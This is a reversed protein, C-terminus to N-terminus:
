WGENQQHDLGYAERSDLFSQTLPFLYRRVTFRRAASNMLTHQGILIATRDRNIEIKHTPSDLAAIIDGPGRGANSYGGYKGWRLYTFYMDGHENCMECNRERMYDAWAEELTNAKSEPLKGHTVRTANLAKIANAVDGLCLYAEALNMYAEGVRALVYHFDCPINYYYRDVNEITNKRWYYGTTTCYWGGDEKSRVGSSANGNLNTQFLEGVFTDGDATINAHFRADRNQYMLESINRNDTRDKKLVSYRSFNPYSYNVNSLDQPSPMRRAEGTLRNYSDIQGAEKVTSPDLEDVNNKWQSTEWWPLAEGSEDDIVLYNDVMEQTPWYVGWGSFTKGHINNFIVTCLSSKQDDASVNPTTLMTEDFSQVTSNEKIRYYGFLIEPNNADTDYFMGGYNETLQKNSVVDMAAAICKTLYSKDGTYAYAQLCASSLMVEAAYKNARGASSSLPLKSIADEFDEIVIDYSEKLTSTIKIDKVALTDSESFVQRIPLFRGMKRAQDFFVLARLFKGEGIILKKEDSSLVDSSEAKSIILNCRRLRTSQNTGLDISTSLGTETTWTDIGKGVQDAMVSNPTRSEWAIATGSGAWVGNIVSEYTSNIFANVTSYSTWVTEEDFFDTPHTDLTNKCSSALLALSMGLLLELIINTKM